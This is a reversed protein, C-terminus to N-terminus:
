LKLNEVPIYKKTPFFIANKLVTKRKLKFIFHVDKIM